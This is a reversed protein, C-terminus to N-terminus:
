PPHTAAGLPVGRCRGGPPSALSEWQWLRLLPGLHQRSWSPRLCTGTAWGLHVRGPWPRFSWVPQFSCCGGGSWRGSRVGQEVAFPCMGIGFSALVCRSLRPRSQRFIHLWPFLGAAILISHCRSFRTMTRLKRIWTLGSIRMIVKEPGLNYVGEHKSAKDFDKMRIIKSNLIKFNEDVMTFINQPLRASIM